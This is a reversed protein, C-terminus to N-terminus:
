TRGDNASCLLRVQQYSYTYGRAVCLIDQGKLNLRKRITSVHRQVASLEALDDDLLAHLEERRHPLGDKLLDLIRSETPTFGNNGSM